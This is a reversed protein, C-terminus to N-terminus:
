VTKNKSFEKLALAVDGQIIVSASYVLYGPDDKMGNEVWSYIMGEFAYELFSAIFNKDRDDVLLGESKEEVVGMILKHVQPHLYREIMRRDLDKYINEVFVKNEYIINFINLLGQQWTDYTKNNDLAEDANQICIWKIMDYIDTFHYYFTMRNIKCDDTIDNITIKSLPKTKLIKKFSAEIAKKTIDSM